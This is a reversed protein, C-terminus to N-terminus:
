ETITFAFRLAPIKNGPHDDAYTLQPLRYLQQPADAPGKYIGPYLDIVHTGPAGSATFHFVVDGQSNFGCVYGMYGNDYNAVLINDYETWGVGKLHITIETGVPGAAPTMSVISTEIVFYTRALEQDGDRLVLAHLGGLDDPITISQALNGTADVDISGISMEKPDFGTGSVRSGVMTQWVVSLTKGPPFAAGVLQTQTQVAGQTPSLTLTAGMPNETAPVPQPQYPEIFAEGAAVGPTTHFVFDPRELYANPAQEYNLYSQGMYGSYVKIPHDGVPGSARFRAVASGKTGAASIWGAAVNDWNLVWVSEMTQWGLGKARIEVPTGVPGEQPSMEFSAAVEVAGQGIPTGDSLAMVNHVGGYDEPVNFGGELVGEDGVRFQGLALQSEHYQKGEFKYYDRTVWGGEVTDWQLDIVSGPALGTASFTVLSGVTTKAPSTVIQAFPSQAQSVRPPSAAQSPVSGASSQAYGAAGVVFASLGFLIAGLFGRSRLRQM